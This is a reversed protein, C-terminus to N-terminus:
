IKVRSTARKVRKFNLIVRGKILEGLRWFCTSCLYVLMGNKGFSIEHTARPRPHQDCCICNFIEGPKIEHIEIM